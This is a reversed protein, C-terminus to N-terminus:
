LQRVWLTGSMTMDDAVATVLRVILLGAGQDTKFRMEPPFIEPLGARVNFTDRMLAVETGGTAIATDAVRATFSSAEDKSDTPQPTPASGGTGATAAGRFIGYELMEEQAEAIESKNALKLAVIEIPEDDAATLTFLDYDGNATTIATAPGFVVTYVGRPM